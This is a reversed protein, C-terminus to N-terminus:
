IQVEINDINKNHKALTQGEEGEALSVADCDLGDVRGRQCEDVRVDCALDSLLHPLGSLLHQKSPSKLFPLTSRGELIIGSHAPLCGQPM